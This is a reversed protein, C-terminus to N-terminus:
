KLLSKITDLVDQVGYKPVTGNDYMAISHLKKELVKLIENQADKRTSEVVLFLDAYPVQGNQHDHMWAQVREEWEQSPHNPCEKGHKKSEWCCANTSQPTPSKISRDCDPCVGFQNGHKCITTFKVEKPEALANVADILHNVKHALPVVFNGDFSKKIEKEIDIHEIKKM